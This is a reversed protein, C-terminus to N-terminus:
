TTGTLCATSVLLKGNPLVFVVYYSTAATATIKLGLTGDAKTTFLSPGASGLNTIAGNTLVALSSDALCHTLGTSATSLYLLGSTAIAMTDGAVDKFVFQVDVITNAGTTATTTMSAVGGDVTNLEAATATVETGNIKLAKVDTIHFPNVKMTDM